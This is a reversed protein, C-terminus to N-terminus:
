RVPARISEKLREIEVLADHYDTVDILCGLYGM